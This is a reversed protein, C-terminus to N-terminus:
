GLLINLVAPHYADLWFHSVRRRGYEDIADEASNFVAPDEIGDEWINITIDRTAPELFEELYM